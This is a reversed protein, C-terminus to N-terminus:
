QGPGRLYGSVLALDWMDGPQAHNRSYHSRPDRTDLPPADSVVVKGEDPCGKVRCIRKYRKGPQDAM